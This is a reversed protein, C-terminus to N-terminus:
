GHGCDHLTCIDVSRCQINSKDPPISEQLVFMPQDNWVAFRRVLCHCVWLKQWPYNARRQRRWKPTRTPMSVDHKSEPLCIFSGFREISALVDAKVVQCDSNQVRLSELSGKFLNELAFSDLDVKGGLLHLSNRKMMGHHVLRSTVPDFQSEM